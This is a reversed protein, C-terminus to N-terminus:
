RTNKKKKLCFVAYSIKVHSSNLRTSKRDISESSHQFLFLDDLGILKLDANGNTLAGLQYHQALVELVARVDPFLTVQNRAQHFIAFAKEAEQRAERYIPLADHPFLPASCRPSR